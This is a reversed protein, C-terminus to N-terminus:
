SMMDDISAVAGRLHGGIRGERKGDRRAEEAQGACKQCCFSNNTQKNPIKYNTCGSIHQSAGRIKSLCVAM